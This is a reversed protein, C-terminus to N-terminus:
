NILAMPSINQEQNVPDIKMTEKFGKIVPKAKLKEVEEILAKVKVELDSNFQKLETNSKLISAIQSKMEVDKKGDKKDEDEDEDEEDTKKKKESVEAAKVEPVVPTVDEVIVKPEEIITEETMSNVENNTTTNDINQYTDFSDRFGNVASKMVANFKAEPNVPCGTLTINLLNLKNVFSKMVGNVKRKVAELPFFAVSFSHLFGKKISDWIHKFRPSSTNLEVRGWVGKVRLEADAVKGVTISSAPRAKVQGKKDYFVEHEVDFTITRGKVQRLIDEQAKTTITELALDEDITSFYGEVYYKKENGGKTIVELPNFEINYTYSEQKNDEQM